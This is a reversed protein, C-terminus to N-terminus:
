RCCSQSSPRHQRVLAEMADTDPGDHNWPVGVIKAGFAKLGGFLIFLGPDDVLVTDGTRVFCRAVLDMAHIVGLTLGIQEIDATVGIASLKNRLLDRLPLYGDPKGYTTLFNGDRLSLARLSKKIGTEEMWSAPLWGLGPMSKSSGPELANRVLWVVDVVNNPKGSRDLSVLPKPRALVNFGSGQRSQLYGMAVLRDYAQVVTFRSIGHDRAFNRISPMRAGARITRGDIMKKVADIIQETLPTADNSDLRIM